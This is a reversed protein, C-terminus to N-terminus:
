GPPTAGVGSAFPMASTATILLWVRARRTGPRAGALVHWPLAPGGSEKALRSTQYLEQGSTSWKMWQHHQGNRLDGHGNRPRRSLVDMNRQGRECTQVCQRHIAGSFHGFGYSVCIM